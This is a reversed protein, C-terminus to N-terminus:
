NPKYLKSLMINFPLLIIKHQIHKMLVFMIKSHSNVEPIVAPQYWQNSQKSFFLGIGLNSVVTILSTIM